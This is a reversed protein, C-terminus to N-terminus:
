LEERVLVVAGGAVGGGVAIALVLGPGPWSGRAGRRVARMRLLRNGAANREPVQILTLAPAVGAGLQSTEIGTGTRTASTPQPKKARLWRKEHVSRALSPSISSTATHSM